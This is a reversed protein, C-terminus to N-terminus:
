PILVRLLNIANSPFYIMVSGSFLGSCGFLGKKGGFFCLLRLTVAVTALEPPKEKLKKGRYIYIYIYLYYLIYIYLIIYM